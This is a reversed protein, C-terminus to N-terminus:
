RASWAAQGKPGNASGSLGTAAMGKRWSEGSGRGSGPMGGRQTGGHAAMRRAQTASDTCRTVAKV